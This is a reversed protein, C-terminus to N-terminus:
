GLVPPVPQGSRPHLQQRQGAAAGPERGAAPSRADHGRHQGAHAGEAVEDLDLVLAKSAERVPAATTSTPSGPSTTPVPWPTGTSAQHHQGGRGLVVAGDGPRVAPQLAAARRPRQRHVGRGPVPAEAVPDDRYVYEGQVTVPRGARHRAAAVRQHHHPTSAPGDQVLANEFGTVLRRGDPTVAASELGLNQRVGATGFDPDVYAPLDIERLQRGDLTFERVFPTVESRLETAPDRLGGLDHDSHGAATLTLGEPDVTGGQLPVGAADTLLTVGVVEVDGPDLAGDSTDVTLTYFRVPGQGLNPQADSLAYYVDRAADYTISSLGGVVTGEFTLGAALTSEGAYALHPQRARDSM